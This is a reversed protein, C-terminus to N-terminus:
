DASTELGAAVPAILTARTGGTPSPGLSVRGGLARLREEISQLGFGKKREADGLGRGDDDVWLVIHDRDRSLRVYARAARAHKAVNVLLERLSRFLLIRAM